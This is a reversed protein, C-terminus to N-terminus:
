NKTYDSRLVFYNVTSDSAHNPMDEVIKRFEEREFYKTADTMSEFEFEVLRHPNTGNYNDYSAIRKLEEPAQLSAGVSKVWEIYEAKKGLPYNLSYVVKISNGMKKHHDATAPFIVLQTALQWGLVLLVGLAIYTMKQKLQM